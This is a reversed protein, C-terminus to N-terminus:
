AHAEAFETDNYEFKGLKEFIEKVSQEKVSTETFKDMAIITKTKTLGPALLKINQEEVASFKKTVQTKLQNVNQEESNKNDELAM